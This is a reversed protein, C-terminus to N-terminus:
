FKEIFRLFFLVQGYCNPSSLLTASNVWLWPSIILMSAEPSPETECKIPIHSLAQPLSVSNSLSESLVEVISELNFPLLINVIHKCDWAFILM